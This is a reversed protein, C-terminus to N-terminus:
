QSNFFGYIKEAIKKNIGKVKYLENIKACRIKEINGFHDILIKKRKNGIGIIEDFVSKVTVM